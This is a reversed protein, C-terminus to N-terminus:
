LIQVRPNGSAVRFRALTQASTTRELANVKKFEVLLENPRAELLGYGRSKQEDYKIHPNVSEINNTVLETQAPPLGGATNGIEEPIGLSTISGGVFETAVSAPGRGNVGVEGAFFTHIDGTIFTLDRIGRGRVLELLERREVGYGDWSDKNFSQFPPVDISMVMLQNGIVKWHAGSRELGAKLWDLQERGLYARPENEAEPCITTFSDDCPQDERYQRQDLLFLEVNAGVRLKRYLDQGRRPDNRVPSFPMYEYFSRYGATRRELFPVRMQQTEEGPLNGAYNDEVEHDDWIGVYPHAAHMAQLDADAKYMRYKARYEDLTQVEGDGNAGLTDTRPGEYFNREYIYDGLCVVLDVDEGAIASHAGFYGAQWDQCSFFAIRVPQQSDAPRQTRFRGVASSRDRTEFRYFYERDPKLAKGSVRTEVTHDRNARARVKRRLVVKRFGPDKAVEVFLRRDRKFGDLRTWLTIGRPAPEGAAIGQPFAGGKAFPVRNRRKRRAALAPDVTVGGLILAGAGIGAYGVFDRRDLRADM